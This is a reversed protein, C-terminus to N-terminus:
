RSREASTMPLFALAGDEMVRRVRRRKEGRLAGGKKEDRGVRDGGIM